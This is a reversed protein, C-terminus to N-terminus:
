VVAEVKADVVSELSAIGERVLVRDLLEDRAEDRLDSTKLRETKIM